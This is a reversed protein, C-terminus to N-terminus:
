VTEKSGAWVLGILVFAPVVISAIPMWELGTGEPAGAQFAGPRQMQAAVSLLLLVTTNM